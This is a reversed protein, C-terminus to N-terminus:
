ECKRCKGDNDKAVADEPLTECRANGVVLKGAVAHGVIQQLLVIATACLKAFHGAGVDFVFLRKEDHRISVVDHREAEIPIKM